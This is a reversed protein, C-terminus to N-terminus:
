LGLDGRIAATLKRADPGGLTRATAADVGFTHFFRRYNSGEDSGQYLRIGSWWAMVERLETQAAAREEMYKMQVYEKASSPGRAPLRGAAEAARRLEAILEPGYHLLDGEVEEPRRALAVEPAHGCHPCTLSWSQFTRWCGERSGPRV